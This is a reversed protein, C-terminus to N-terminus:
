NQPQMQHDDFCRLINMFYTISYNLPGEFTVKFNVENHKLRIDLEKKHAEDM